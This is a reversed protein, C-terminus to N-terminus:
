SSNEENKISELRSIVNWILTRGHLPINPDDAMEELKFISSAIRVDLDDDSELLLKECEKSNERINRPIATDEEIRDLMDCIQELEEQTEM